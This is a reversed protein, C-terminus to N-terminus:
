PHRPAASRRRIAGGISYGIACFCPASFFLQDVNGSPGFLITVVDRWSSRHLYPLEGAAFTVIFLAVAVLWVYSVSKNWFTLAFAYGLLMGSGTPIIFTPGLMLFDSATAGIGIVRELLLSAVFAVLLAGLTSIALHFTFAKWTPTQDLWLRLPREHADINQNDMRELRLM